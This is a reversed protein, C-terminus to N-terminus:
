CTLMDLGFRLHVSVVLGTLCFHMQISKGGGYQALAMDQAKERSPVDVLMITSEWLRSISVTATDTGGTVQLLM